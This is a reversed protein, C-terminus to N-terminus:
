FSERLEQIVPGTAPRVGHWLYFAEAAQEVLMGRGDSVRAAGAERAWSTFVDTDAGYMLDYCITAAHVAGREIPPLVGHLSLSTANVIIDFPQYVSAGWTLVNTEAEAEFKAALRESKTITRNMIFVCAPGAAVLAPLVGCAAGGAGVLLVRRGVVETRQNIVLDRVLGTGDTNDVTLCGLDDFWLTNAACAAEARQMRRAALAFAEEKLPLTINMGRGGLHKFEEIAAELEGQRVEIRDYRLTRGTQAAFASHITPSKSHSIPSGTVCYYPLNLGLGSFFRRMPTVITVSAGSNCSTGVSTM